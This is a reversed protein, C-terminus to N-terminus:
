VFNFSDKSIKKEEGTEIAKEITRCVTYLYDTLETDFNDWFIRRENGRYIPRGFTKRRCPTEESSRWRSSRVFPLFFRRSSLRLPLFNRPPPWDSRPSNFQFPFRIGNSRIVNTLRHGTTLKQDFKQWLLPFSNRDKITLLQAANKTPM